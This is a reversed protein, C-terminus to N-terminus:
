RFFPTSYLMSEVKTLDWTIKSDQSFIDTAVVVTAMIPVPALLLINISVVFIWYSFFYAYQQFVKNIHLSVLPAM